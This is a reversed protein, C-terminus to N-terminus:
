AGDYYSSYLKRYVPDALGLTAFAGFRTGRSGAEKFFPLFGAFRAPRERVIEDLLGTVARVSFRRSAARAAESRAEFSWSKWDSMSGLAKRLGEQDLRAQGGRLSVPVVRCAASEFAAYGGWRSLIAPSGALLAEAPSMGFDEDHHVSLSLFVDGANYLRNLEEATKTGLYLTRFREHEM